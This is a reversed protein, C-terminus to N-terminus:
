KNPIELKFHLNVSQCVQEGNCLTYIGKGFPRGEFIGEFKAPRESAMDELPYSFVGICLANMMKHNLASIIRRKSQKATKLPGQAASQAHATATMLHFEPKTCTNLAKRDLICLNVYMYALRGM